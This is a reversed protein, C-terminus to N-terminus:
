VGTGGGKGGGRRVLGDFFQAIVDWVKNGGSIGSWNTRILGVLKYCEDISVLFCDSRGRVYNILVAEVDSEMGCITTSQAAIEDWAEMTLLSETAGGPSPYMAIVKKAESNRYFFALNIPLHLSNWVSDDIDRIAKVRRPVRRYRQAPSGSFLVACADCACVLARSSVEMLHQHEPALALGCLECRELAVRSKALAKLRSIPVSTPETSTQM